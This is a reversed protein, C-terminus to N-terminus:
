LTIEREVGIAELFTPDHSVVLIAGDYSSLAQEIVEISELDLHNTPEDLLLLQPIPSASLVCALGARLCEGGSLDRVSRDGEVNRFAFRALAARAANEDLEKNLRRMNAVLTAGRDLQGVTQDLLASPAPRRIEGAQPTILGGALKLLTSKGAGNRGSVAVREPGRLDFSLHEFLRRDGWGWSVEHFSLVQRNSPLGCQPVQVNLPTIVEVQARADNLTAALASARQEALLDGRGSSKEARERQRGMLIKPASGSAAYAQGARDRRLKRERADQAQRAGARAHRHARELEAEARERVADREDVWSSWNGGHVTVRTPSLSVIRDVNELLLRDHSVILAGGKWEALFAAIAHRGARDLNNTPEDLLLLDPPDILLGAIALRTREGGSFTTLPRDLQIPPLGAEALANVVRPPLTWDAEAFDTEDGIGSEIRDLRALADAVGLAKGATTEGPELSQRLVGMTGNRHITGRQPTIEGLIARLLSSKGAGNRGVVGMRERGVSFSLDSFLPRGTPTTLAVGDLTLFASM